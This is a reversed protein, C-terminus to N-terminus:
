AAIRSDVWAAVDRSLWVSTKAGFKIPKPFGETNIKKYVTTRSIRLARCVDTIKLLEIETISKHM